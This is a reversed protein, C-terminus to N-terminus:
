IAKKLSGNQVYVNMLDPKQAATPGAMLYPTQRTGILPTIEDFIAETCTVSNLNFRTEDTSYSSQFDEPTESLDRNELSSVRSNRNAAILLIKM